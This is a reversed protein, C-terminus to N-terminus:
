RGRGRRWMPYFLLRPLLFLVLVALLLNIGTSSTLPVKQWWFAVASVVLGVVLWAALLGAMRQKAWQAVVRPVNFFLDFVLHELLAGREGFVPVIRVTNTAWRSAMFRALAPYTTIMQFPFALYGLYKLFSVPAAVMYSRFDREKSMLYVVYAGRCLSGPSIPIVQFFGVALTFRTLARAWSAGSLLASVALVGGVLLSIVQTVPLTAMHVGLSKLYKVIFPDRVHALITQRESDDLMGERYGEEIMDAFWKERFADDRFFSRLFAVAQRVRGIVYSPEALVRHLRPPLWGLAVRQLWFLWTHALLTRTRRESTRGSRHWELLKTAAAGRMARRLYGRSVVMGAIHRRYASNGWLRRLVRGLLPVAGLFYFGLFRVASTRLKSAFTKDVLDNVLYGQVLGDRVTARLARDYLLRFRHHTVDPMSRRYRRDYQEFTGALAVLEGNRHRVAAVYDRLQQYDCRDFQVLSGRALGELILTVDRPNMPLFPLVALGARFDVACLGADPNGDANLRKLVNPQSKMTWWEYQRALERGGMRHLLAVFRAMFQRKAVYEPSGTLEPALEKWRRRLGLRTDPELRWVRGEVWELVEGYAGLGAEYFSAYVDVVRGEEGFEQAAAYRVLKQWLLGARCADANVQASFPAQFGLWYVLNRFFRSFRSPPVLIKLAYIQREALGPVSTDAEIIKELVAQYVQGAFGGGVFRIIKFRARCTKEPWVTTLDVTLEDDRDYRLPRYGIALEADRAIRALERCLDLSYDINPM